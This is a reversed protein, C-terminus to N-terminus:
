QNHLWEGHQLYYNIVYRVLYLKRCTTALNGNKDYIEFGFKIHRYEFGKCKKMPTEIYKSKTM